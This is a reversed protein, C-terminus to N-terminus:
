CKRPSQDEPVKCEQLNRRNLKCIIPETRMIMMHFNLKGSLLLLFHILDELKDIIKRGILLKHLLQLPCVFLIIHIIHIIISSFQRAEGLIQDIRNLAAEVVVVNLNCKM